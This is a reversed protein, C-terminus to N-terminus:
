SISCGKSHHKDGFPYQRHRHLKHFSDSGEMQWNKRPFGFYEIGPKCLNWSRPTTVAMQLIFHECNTFCTRVNSSPETVLGYTGQPELCFLCRQWLLHSSDKSNMKEKTSLLLIRSSKLFKFIKKMLYTRFFM